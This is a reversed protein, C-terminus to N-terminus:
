WVRSSEFLDHHKVVRYNEDSVFPRLVAAAMEAHNDPALSDGIDHLTACRVVPLRCHTSM